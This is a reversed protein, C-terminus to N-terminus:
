AIGKGGTVGYFEGNIFSAEQSALLVFVPAPEVPQAPRSFDSHKGFNKVKEDPQGGSPQLMTWDLGPAVVNARIDSKLAQGFFLQTFDTM